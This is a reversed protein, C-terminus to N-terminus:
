WEGIGVCLGIDDFGFFDCYDVGVGCVRGVDVVDQMCCCVFLDYCDDVGMGVVVM